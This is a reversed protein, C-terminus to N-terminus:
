DSRQWAGSQVYRLFFDRAAKDKDLIDLFAPVPVSFGTGPTQMFTRNPTRDTM